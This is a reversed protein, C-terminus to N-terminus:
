QPEPAVFRGSRRIRRFRQRAFRMCTSEFGPASLRITRRTSAVLVRGHASSCLENAVLVDYRDDREVLRRDIWGVGRGALPRIADDGGVGVAMELLDVM